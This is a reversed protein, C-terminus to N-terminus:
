PEVASCLESSSTTMLLDRFLSRSGLQDRYFALAAPVNRVIFFPSVGGIRAQTMQGDM